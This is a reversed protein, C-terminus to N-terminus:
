VPPGSERLPPWDRPPALRATVGAGANGTPPTTPHPKAGSQVKSKEESKESHIFLLLLSSSLPFSSLNGCASLSRHRTVSHSLCPVLQLQLYRFSVRSCLRQLQLDIVLSSKMQQWCCLVQYMYQSYLTNTHATDCYRPSM